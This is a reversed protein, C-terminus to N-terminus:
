NFLGTYTMEQRDDSTVVLKAYGTNKNLNFVFRIGENMLKTIVNDAPLITVQINIGDTSHVAYLFESCTLNVTSSEPNMPNTFFRGVYPLNVYFNKKDVTLYYDGLGTIPNTVGFEPEVTNPYFSFNLTEINALNTQAEKIAEEKKKEERLEKKEQKVEEKTENVQASVDVASLFLLTSLGLAFFM